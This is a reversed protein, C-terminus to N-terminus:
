AAVHLAVEARARGLLDDDPAAVLHYEAFQNLACGLRVYPLTLAPPLPRREVVDAVLGVDSLAFRVRHIGRERLRMAAASLAAYGVERDLLAPYRKVRFPVRLLAPNSRSAGRLAVYAVGAGDADAAFGLTAEIMPTMKRASM